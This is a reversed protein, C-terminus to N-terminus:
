AQVNFAVLAVLAWLLAISWVISFPNALILVIAVFITSLVIFDKLLQIM